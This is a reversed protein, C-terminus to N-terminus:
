DVATEQTQSFGPLYGYVRSGQSGNKVWPSVRGTKSPSYM